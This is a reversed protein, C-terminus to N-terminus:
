APRVGGALITVDKGNDQRVILFGSPDLGRTVGEIIKDGQDVRVRRGSVYSSAQSFLSCIAEAGRSKLIEMVDDVRNALAILAAERSAVAGEIALSTALAAIDSPFVSHGINIGIGAIIANDEKVAIIGACKKGNLLVDNPWRLDPALGSVEAIADRAALGLSLMVLPLADAGIPPRLLFSVYLGAGPESHWSHGHRGIGRSQEDAGVITGSPAAEKALRAAVTMTSDTTRFWEIRRHPLATRVWDLDIM